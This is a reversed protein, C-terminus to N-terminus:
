FRIPRRKTVFIDETGDGIWENYEYIADHLELVLKEDNEFDLPISFKVNSDSGVSYVFDRGQVLDLDVTEWLRAWDDLRLKDFSQDFILSLRRLAIAHEVVSIDPDAKIRSLIYSLHQRRARPNNRLLDSTAIDAEMDKVAEDYVKKVKRWDISRVFDDRSKEYRSRRSSGKSDPSEFDEAHKIHSVDLGAVTLLKRIESVVQGEMRVTATSSEPTSGRAEQVLNWTPLRLAVQKRIYKTKFKKKAAEKFSIMFDVKVSSSEPKRLRGRGGLMDIVTDIYSNLNQVALLNVAKAEDDNQLDPHCKQLFPRVLGRLDKKSTSALQRTFRSKQLLGSGHGAYAFTKWSGFM